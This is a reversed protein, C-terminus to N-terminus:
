HNNRKLWKRLEKLLESFGWTKWKEDNRTLDAKIAPLKDLTSLVLGDVKTHGDMARLAEKVASFETGRVMHLNIIEKTHSALVTKDQGYEEKLLKMARGYGNDDNPINGLLEHCAGRVRQLLYGLKITKSM